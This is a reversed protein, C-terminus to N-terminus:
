AHQDSGVSTNLTTLSKRPQILLTQDCKNKTWGRSLISPLNDAFLFNRQKSLNCWRQDSWACHTRGNAVAGKWRSSCRDPVTQWLWDPWWWRQLNEAASQFGFKKGPRVPM